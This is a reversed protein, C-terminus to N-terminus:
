KLLLMKGTAYFDGARLHYFYIGASVSEGAENTSNWSISHHGSEQSRNVLTKVTNGLVDYITLKVQAQEPLSYTLTSSPNFPNPYNQHLAFEVPPTTIHENDTAVSPDHVTIEVVSEWPVGYSDSTSIRLGFQHQDPCAASVEIVFAALVEQISDPQIPQLAQTSDVLTIYSDDIQINVNIDNSVQVGLNTVEFGLEIQEGSNWNGDNNGASNGISDDDITLATVPLISLPELWVAVDTWGNSVPINTLSDNMFGPAQIELTFSGPSTFRNFRGYESETMRPTMGPDWYESIKVQAVVASSDFNSFIHGRIGPGIFSRELVYMAGDLNDAAVQQAIAFEPVFEIGTEVLMEFVGIKEYAWYYSMPAEEWSGGLSYHGTGDQQPLRNAMQQAFDNILATEGVAHNNIGSKYYIIEGYSHYTIGAIPRLYEVWQKKARVESESFPYPGKYVWSDPDPSGSMSTEWASDYNRNLDVGDYVYDFQGNENNDRQNKRWWPYDSTEEIFYIYGDTNLIPVIWIEMENIIQAITTDLVYNNLLHDTLVMCSMMGMPERAHHVGDIWVVTEDERETPNDSIKIGYIPNHHRTSEGIEVIETINPFSTHYANLLLNIEDYSQYDPVRVNSLLRIVQHQVGTQVLRDITGQDAVIEVTNGFGENVADLNLDNILTSTSRSDAVIEVIYFQGASITPILGLLLIAALLCNKKM